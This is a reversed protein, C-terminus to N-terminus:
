LVKMNRHFYIVMVSYNINGEQSKTLDFLIIPEAMYTKGQNRKYDIYWRVKRPDPPQKIYDILEKQWQRLEYEPVKYNNHKMKEFENM